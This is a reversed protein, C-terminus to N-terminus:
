GPIAWTDLTHSRILLVHLASAGALCWSSSENGVEQFSTTKDNIIPAVNQQQIQLNHENENHM